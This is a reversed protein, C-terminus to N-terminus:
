KNTAPYAAVPDAFAKALLSNFFHAMAQRHLGNEDCGHRLDPRSPQRGEREAM